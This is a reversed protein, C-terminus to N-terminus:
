NDLDNLTEEIFKESLGDTDNPEVTLSNYNFNKSTLITIM